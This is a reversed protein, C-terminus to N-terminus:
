VRRFHWPYSIAHTRANLDGGIKSSNRYFHEDDDSNFCIHDEQHLSVTKTRVNKEIKGYECMHWEWSNIIERTIPFTRIMVIYPFSLYIMSVYAIM